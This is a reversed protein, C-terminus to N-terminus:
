DLRSLGPAEGEARGKAEGRAEGEAEAQQYLSSLAVHSDLPPTKSGCRLSPGCYGQRRSL